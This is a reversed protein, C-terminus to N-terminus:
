KRVIITFDYLQYDHLLAVNKSFHTKCYDFLLCPDAYYLDPRMREADSYKTLFNSSFGKESIANLKHLCELTYGTWDEYSSELRINFVGSAISFDVRPIESMQSTFIMEPRNPHLERAKSVMSPLIDYGIYKDFILGKELCYDALSGFGCGYDLLTFDRNQNIVKMLQDFRVNQSQESNWDAGRPTAGHIKLAQDFYNRINDFNEDFSM